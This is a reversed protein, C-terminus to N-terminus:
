YSDSPESVEPDLSCYRQYATACLSWDEEHLAAYGLHFWLTVQLSNIALSEQLHPISEAYQLMCIVHLTLPFLSRCATSLLQSQLQINQAYQLLCIVHNINTVQKKDNLAGSHRELVKKRRIKLTELLNTPRSNSLVKSNVIFM